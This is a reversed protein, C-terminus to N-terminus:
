GTGTWKSVGFPRIDIGLTLVNISKAVGRNRDTNAPRAISARASRYTHWEFWKTHSNRLFKLWNPSVCDVATCDSLRSGYLPFSGSTPFKLLTSTFSLM